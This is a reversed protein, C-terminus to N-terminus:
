LWMLAYREDYHDAASPPKTVVAVPPNEIDYGHFNHSKRQLHFIFYFSFILTTIQTPCSLPNFTTIHLELM